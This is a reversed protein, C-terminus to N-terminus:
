AVEQIDVKTVATGHADMARLAKLNAELPTRPNPDDPNDLRGVSGGATFNFALGVGAGSRVGKGTREGSERFSAEAPIDFPAYVHDVHRFPRLKPQSKREWEEFQRQAKRAKIRAADQVKKAEKLRKEREKQKKLKATTAM